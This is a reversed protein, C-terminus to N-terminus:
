LERCVHDDKEEPAGYWITRNNTATNFAKLCDKLYKALIWDPTDSYNEMSHQNILIEIEKYFNVRMEEQEEEPTITNEIKEDNM